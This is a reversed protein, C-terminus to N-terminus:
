ELDNLNINLKDLMTEIYREVYGEGKRRQYILSTRCIGLIDSWESQNLTKGRVTIWIAKKRGEKYALKLSNSHKKILDANDKYTKGRKSAGIKERTTDSVPRNHKLESYYKRRKEGDEGVWLQKQSNSIQAKTQESHKRGRQSISMKQKTENSVTKGIHALSMNKRGNDSIKSKGGARIQNYTGNAYHSKCYDIWWQERETLNSIDCYELIQYSFNGEGYLDFDRQLTKCEHKHICLANLHHKIRSNLDKSQGVYVKQFPNNIICYIGSKKNM